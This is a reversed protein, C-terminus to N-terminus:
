FPHKCHLSMILISLAKVTNLLVRVFGLEQGVTGPLLPGRGKKEYKDEGHKDRACIM